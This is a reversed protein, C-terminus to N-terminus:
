LVQFVQWSTLAKSNWAQALETSTNTRNPVRKNFSGASAANIQKHREGLIEVAQALETSTNTRNNPNLRLEGFKVKLLVGLTKTPQLALILQTLIPNLNEILLNM